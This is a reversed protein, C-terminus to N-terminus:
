AQLQLQLQQKEEKEEQLLTKLEGNNAVQKEYYEYLMDVREFMRLIVEYMDKVDEM